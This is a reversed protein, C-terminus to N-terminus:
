LRGVWVISTLPNLSLQLGGGTAATSGTAHYDTLRRADQELMRHSQWQPVPSVGPGSM